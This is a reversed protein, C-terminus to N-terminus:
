LQWPDLLVKAKRGPSPVADSQFYWLNELASELQTLLQLPVPRDMVWYYHQAM